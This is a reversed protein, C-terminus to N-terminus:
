KRRDACDPRYAGANNILVDIRGTRSVTADVMRSVSGADAVDCPVAIADGGSAKIERAIAEIREVSRAALTVTAGAQAFHRAAAEGIGRSAGTIVVTKGTFDM